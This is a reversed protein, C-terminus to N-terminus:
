EVAPKQLAAPWAGNPDLRVYAAGPLGPKVYDLHRRAVEPDVRAKVRFMLKQREKETEVVKPTFQAVDSVFSVKAPVVYRCDADLVLRVEAGIPVRGAQETPLFFTMFVDSTDVLSVVRGGPALVEGPEAVRLHVRGPRPAKLVGDDIESSIAELSAEAAAVAAEADIVQIKAAAIAADCASLQAKAAARGALAGNASARDDDLVQQSLAGSHVLQETREFRRTAADVQADRQAILALAQMREAERQAVLSRAMGVAVTARDLQADARRRQAELQTTDLRALIQGAEVYDGEQVLIEKVRLASKAAVDIETAEIRGNGSTVHATVDDPALRRQAYFGGSAVAVVGAAGLLWRQM